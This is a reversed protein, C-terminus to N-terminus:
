LAAQRSKIDEKLSPVIIKAATTSKVGARGFPMAKRFSETDDPLHIRGRLM